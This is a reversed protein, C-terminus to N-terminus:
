RATKRRPLKPRCIQRFEMEAESGPLPHVWPSPGNFSRASGDRFYLTDQLLRYTGKRCNFEYLSINHAIKKDSDPHVGKFWAQVLREREVVRDPAYYLKVDEKSTGVYQWDDDEQNVGSAFRIEVPLVLIVALWFILSSRM